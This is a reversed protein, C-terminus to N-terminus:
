SKKRSYNKSFCMPCGAGPRYEQEQVNSDSDHTSFSGGAGDGSLSGGDNAHRSIDAIFGCNKCRVKRRPSPSASPQDQGPNANNKRLKGDGATPGPFMPKFDGKPGPARWRM